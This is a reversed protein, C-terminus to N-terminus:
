ARSISEWHGGFSMSHLAPMTPPSNSIRILLPPDENSLRQGTVSQWRSWMELFVNIAEM